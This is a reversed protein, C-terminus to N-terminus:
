KHQVNPTTLARPNRVENLKKDKQNGISLVESFMYCIWGTKMSSNFAAKSSRVEQRQKPSVPQGLQTWTQKM